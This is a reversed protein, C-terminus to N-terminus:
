REFSEGDSPLNKDSYQRLEHCFSMVSRSKYVRKQRLTALYCSRLPANGALPSWNLSSSRSLSKALSLPVIAWGGQDTLFPLLMSATNVRIRLGAPFWHDYWQGFYLDFSQFVGKSADLSEPHILASDTRNGSYIVVYPEQFLLETSIDRAYHDNNAIGIDLEGSHLLAYVEWSHLSQITIDMLTNDGLFAYFFPSFVHSIASDVGGINLRVRAPNFKISMSSEYLQVWQEAIGLFSEGEATPEVIKQGKGRSFLQAGLEEELLQLRQSLASQSIHLTEAARTIGKSRYITLFATISAYDM